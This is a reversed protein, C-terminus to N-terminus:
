SVKEYVYKNIKKFNELLYDQCDTKWVDISKPLHGMKLDKKVGVHLCLKGSNKLWKNFLILLGMPDPLHEVVDTCIITDFLNDPFEAFDSTILTPTVAYGRLTYRKTAFELMNKSIDAIYVFCGNDACAIGHLSTGCGYDLVCNGSKQGRILTFVEEPRNRRSTISLTAIYESLHASESYLAYLAKKDIKGDRYYSMEPSFVLVGLNSIQKKLPVGLIASAEELLEKDSLSLM